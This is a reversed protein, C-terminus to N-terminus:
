KRDVNNYDSCSRASYQVGPKFNDWMCFSVWHETGFIDKYGIVGHTALWGRGEELAAKEEATVPSQEMENPRGLVSRLRPIELDEPNEPMLAGVTYAQHPFGGAFHPETGNSVVEVFLDAKVDIAPSKGTNAVTIHRVHLAPDATSPRTKPGVVSIWAREEKRMVDLQRNVIRFQQIAVATLALTFLGIWRTANATRRAARDAPTEQEKKAHREQAKSKIYWVFWRWGSHRRNEIPGNSPANGQANEM